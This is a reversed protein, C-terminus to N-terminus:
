YFGHHQAFISNVKPKWRMERRYASRNKSRPFNRRRRRAFRRRRRWRPKARSWIANFYRNHRRYSRGYRRNRVYTVPFVGDWIKGFGQRAAAYAGSVPNGTRITEAGFTYLADKAHPLAKAYAEKRASLRAKRIQDYATAADRQHSMDWNANTAAKGFLFGLSMIFQSALALVQFFGYKKADVLTWPPPTISLGGGKVLKYSM